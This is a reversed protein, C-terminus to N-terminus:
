AGALPGQPPIRLGDYALWIRKGYRRQLIDQFEDFGYKSWHAIHTIYIGTQPTVTGQQELLDITECLSEIDLHGADKPLITAGFSGEIILTSLPKNKLYDLTQPVFRGTDTAYLLSSQGNEFLYLLSREGNFFSDHNGRVPTVRWAGTEFTEFPKVPVFRCVKEMQKLQDTMQTHPLQKMQELLPMLGDYGEQSVYINIPGPKGASMLLFAVNWYDFHDEHLHTIFVNRLRCLSVGFEGCAAMVDANFDLLNNEDLLFSSRRRKLRHDASQRARQCAPCDCFPNPYCEAAATGLFQM